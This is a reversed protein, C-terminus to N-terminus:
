KNPVKEEYKALKEDSMSMVHEKTFENGWVKMYAENEKFMQKGLYVRGLRYLLLPCAYAVFGQALTDMPGFWLRMGIIGIFVAPSLLGTTAYLTEM